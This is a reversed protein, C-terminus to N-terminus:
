CVDTELVDLQIGQCRSQLRSQATSVNNNDHKSCLCTYIDKYITLATSMDVTRQLAVFWVITAQRRACDPQSRHLRRSVAKIVHAACLVIICVSKINMVDVKKSIIKHCTRLYTILNCEDFSKVVAHIIAYSHDVVIYSPTVRRGQNVASVSNVFCDMMSQIAVSRHDASLFEFIPINGPQM